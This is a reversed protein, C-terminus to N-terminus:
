PLGLEVALRGLEDNARTTEYRAKMLEERFCRPEQARENEDESIGILFARIRHILLHNQESLFSVEKMIDAMTPEPMAPVVIEECKRDANTYTM